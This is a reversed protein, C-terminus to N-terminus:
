WRAKQHQCGPTKPDLSQSGVRHPFPWGECTCRQRRNSLTRRIQADRSLRRYYTSRAM